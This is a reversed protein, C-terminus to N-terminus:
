AVGASVPRTRSLELAELVVKAYLDVSEQSDCHYGDPALWDEHPAIATDWDAITVFPFQEALKRLQESFHAMDADGIGHATVFIIRHGPAIQECLELAAPYSNAHVNTALAVIVYEGLQGVTQMQLIQPVGTAMARGVAADIFAGTQEQIQAAPRIAVSDGILTVSGAAIENSRGAGIYLGGSDDHLVDHRSMMAAAQNLQNANLVATGTRLEIDQSSALPATYVSVVSVIVLLFSVAVAIIRKKAGLRWNLLQSIPSLKFKSASFYNEVYKYSFHAAFFTLAIALLTFIQIIIFSIVGGDGIQAALQRGAGAVIIALPWHFLYTSYSTQALWTLVRPEKHSRLRAQQGRGVLIVAASLLSTLLIGFNFSAANSYNHFIAMATIGALSIVTIALALKSNISELFHVIKTKPYGALIGIISGIMLPYIHSVTNFYAASFDNTQPAANGGIETIAGSANAADLASATSAANAADVGSASIVAVIIQMLVYSLLAVSISIVLMIKRSYALTKRGDRLRRVTRPLVIFLIAGWLLYYQVEISLTWTHVFLHPLLNNAYSSGCALEYLNTTWSLVAAAQQAIQVRFDPSLLLSLPLMVLLMVITAPALRRLRRLYFAALGIRGESMFERILLSTILFGSFVFFVDVGIFGGPLVAPYFHYVLVLVVGFARMCSLWVFHNATPNQSKPEPKLEPVHEQARVPTHEPTHESALASRHGPKHGPAHDLARVSTHEPTHGPTHEPKPWANPELNLVSRRAAKHQLDYKNNYDRSMNDVPM